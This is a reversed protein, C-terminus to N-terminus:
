PNPLCCIKDTDCSFEETTNGNKDGNVIKCTISTTPKVSGYLLCVGGKSECTVSSEAKSRNEQNKQALRVVLPLAIALVLLVFM